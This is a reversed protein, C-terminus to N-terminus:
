LFGQKQNEPNQLWLSGRVEAGDIPSHIPLTGGTVEDQDLGTAKLVDGHTM